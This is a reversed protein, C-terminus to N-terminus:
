RFWFRRTNIAMARANRTPVSNSHGTTSSPQLGDAVIPCGLPYFFGLSKLHISSGSQPNSHGPFPASTDWVSVPLAVAACSRLRSVSDKTRVTFVAVRRLYVGSSFIRITSSPNRRSTVTLSRHRRSPM